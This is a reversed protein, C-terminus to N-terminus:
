SLLERNMRGSDTRLLEPDSISSAMSVEGNDESLGNNTAFIFTDVSEDHGDSVCVHFRTISDENLVHTHLHTEVGDVVSSENESMDLDGTDVHKVLQCIDVFFSFENAVDGLSTLPEELHSVTKQTSTKTNGRHSQSTGLLDEDVSNLVTLLSKCNTWSAFRIRWDHRVLELLVGDQWKQRAGNDVIHAVVPSLVDKRVRLTMFVLLNSNETSDLAHHTPAQLLDTVGTTFSAATSAIEGVRDDRLTDGARVGGHSSLSVVSNQHLLNDLVNKRVHLLLQM